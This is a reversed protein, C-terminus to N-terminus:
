ASASNRSCSVVRGRCAKTAARLTPEIRTRSFHPNRLTPSPWLPPSPTSSYRNRSSSAQPISWNFGIAFVFCCRAAFDNLHEHGVALSPKPLVLEILEETGIALGDDDPRGLHMVPRLPERKASSAHAFVLSM